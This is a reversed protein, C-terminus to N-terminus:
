GIQRAETLTRDIKRPQRDADRTEAPELAHLEAEAEELERRAIDLRASLDAASGLLKTRRLTMAKALTSYAIHAPSRERTREEEAEIQRALESAMHEFDIVM